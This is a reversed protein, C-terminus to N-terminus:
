QDTVAPESPEVKKPQKLVGGPKKGQERFREIAKAQAATPSPTVDLIVFPRPGKAKPSKKAISITLNRPKPKKTELSYFGFAENGGEYVPKASPDLKLRRALDKTQPFTGECVAEKKEDGNFTIAVYTDCDRERVAALYENIADEFGNVNSEDSTGASPESLIGFRGVGWNTDPAVFLTIAAGQKVKGSKYDVVAGTGYEEVGVTEFSGMSDRLEKPAPCAFRTVSRNNIATLADCDKPTKSTEILKALRTIFVKAPENASSAKPKDNATSDDDGGCGGAMVVMTVGLCAAGALRGRVGGFM